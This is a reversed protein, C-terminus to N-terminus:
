VALAETMAADISLWAGRALAAEFIAKGLTEEARRRAAESLQVIRPYQEDIGRRRREADAFGFIAAARAPEGYAEALVAFGDFCDCYLDPRITLSPERLARRLALRAPGAEGGALRCWALTLSIVASHTHNRVSEEYALASRAQEIAGEFNGDLFLAFAYNQEIWARLDRSVDLGAAEQCLAIARDSNGDRTEICALYGLSLAREKTGVCPEALMHEVQERANEVENLEHYASVAMRRVLHLGAWDQAQLCQPILQLALALTGGVDGLNMLAKTLRVSFHRAREEDVGIQLVREMWRQADRYYGIVKWFDWLVDALAIGLEAEAGLTLTWHLAAQVNDYERRVAKVAEADDRDPVDLTAKVFDYFYQAHARGVSKRAGSAELCEAAFARTSELSRYRMQDGSPEAILLSKDVLSTLLDLADSEGVGDDALLATAAEISWTGVLVSLRQLACQETPELLDYGWRILAHLTKQRPLTTRSGGSLLAFRRDLALEIQEVTMVRLRPAALEIALPIGDLRRCISAVADVNENILEFAPDVLRARDVFLHIADFALAEKASLARGQPPVDLTALRYLAEGRIGLPERSTAVITIGPAARLFREALRACEALVHECNDLILLGGYKELGTCISEEVSRALTDELGLASLITPAVDVADAAPALDVFTVCREGAHSAAVELALRTKGVGGPGVLTLIRTTHLLQEIQAIENRRGLFTTLPIPLKVASTTGSREVASGESIYSGAVIRNRGSSKARYLALDAAEVVSGTDGEPTPTVTAVGASISVTGLSTGAHPIHLREVAIRINEAVAVAGALDTEALVVAFEEGGYRTVVDSARMTSESIAKAIQQLCADGAVHGYRDNFEKFYDVDVMVTSLPEKKRTCRRWENAITLDFRRRNGVETLADIEILRELDGNAHALRANRLGVAVYRACTELTAADQESLRSRGRLAMTMVGISQTGIQLPITEAPYETADGVLGLPLDYRYEARARGADDLLISVSRAGFAHTFLTCLETVSQALPAEAALIESVQRVLEGVDIRPTASPTPSVASAEPM